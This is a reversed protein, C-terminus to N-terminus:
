CVDSSSTARLLRCCSMMSIAVHSTWRLRFVYVLFFCVCVLPYLLNWNLIASHNLMKRCTVQRDTPIPTDKDISEYKAQIDGQAFFFFPLNCCLIFVFSCIKEVVINERTGWHGAACGVGIRSCSPSYGSQGREVSPEEQLSLGPAM